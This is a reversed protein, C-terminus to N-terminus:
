RQGDTLDQVALETSPSLLNMLLSVHTPSVHQAIVYSLEKSQPLAELLERLAELGGASAGIGVVRVPATAQATSPSPSAAPPVSVDQSTKNNTM